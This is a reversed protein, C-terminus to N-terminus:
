FSVLNMTEGNELLSDLPIGTREWKSKCNDRFTYFFIKKLFYYKSVLIFNERHREKM